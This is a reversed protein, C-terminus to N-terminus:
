AMTRPFLYKFVGTTRISKKLKEYADIELSITKISM